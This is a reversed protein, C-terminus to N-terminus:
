SVPRQLYEVKREDNGSLIFCSEFVEHTTPSVVREILKGDLTLRPEIIEPGDGRDSIEEMYPVYSDDELGWDILYEEAMPNSYEILKRLEKVDAEMAESMSLGMEQDPWYNEVIYESGGKFKWRPCGEDGYNEMYQTHMVLKM